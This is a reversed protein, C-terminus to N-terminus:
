LGGRDLTNQWIDEYHSLDGQTIVNIRPETFYEKTINGDGNFDSEATRYELVIARNSADVAIVEWTRETKYRSGLDLIM